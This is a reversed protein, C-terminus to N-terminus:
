SIFTSLGHLNCWWDGLESFFRRFCFRSEVDWKTTGGCSLNAWVCTLGYALFDNFFDVQVDRRKNPDVTLFYTIRASAQCEGCSLSFRGGGTAFGHCNSWRRQVQLPKKPGFIPPVKRSPQPRVNTFTIVLSKFTMAKLNYHFWHKEKVISHGCLKQEATIFDQPSKNKKITPFVFNGTVINTSHHFEDWPLYFGAFLIM